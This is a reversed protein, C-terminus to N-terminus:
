PYVLISFAVRGEPGGAAAAATLDFSGFSRPYAWIVLLLEGAAPAQFVLELGHPGASSRLPRPEIDAIQFNDAFAPSLTLSAEDSYSMSIRATFRALATVRQFREYTLSLGADAVTRQSLPGHAFLGTFAILVITAIVVWTAREWAWFADQLRMDELVPYNDSDRERMFVPRAESCHVFFAAKGMETGAAM